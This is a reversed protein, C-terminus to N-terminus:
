KAAPAHAVVDLDADDPRARGARREGRPERLEAVVDRDDLLM